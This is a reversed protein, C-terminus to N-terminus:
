KSTKANAKFWDVGAQAVQGDQEAMDGGSVGIAGIVKGDVILPIGGEFPLVGLTLMATTGKALADSFVKSPAKFIVSTRAKKQAVEVSGIPAEDMRELYLLNAGDDLIAIVMGWHNKVAQKEAAVAMGKAVELTLVPKHGLDASRGENVAVLVAFGLLVIKQSLM